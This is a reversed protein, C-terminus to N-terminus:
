VEVESQTAKAKRKKRAEARRKIEALIKNMPHNERTSCSENGCYYMPVRDKFKHAFMTSGCAKCTITQPEDWTAFDCSECCYFTRGRNLSRKALRGGCKPCKQKLPELLPKTNKCEPYGSCALFAGYRGRRIVMKRGCKECTEDSEIVPESKPQADEGLTSMAEDFAANFM